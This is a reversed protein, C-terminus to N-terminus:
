QKKPYPKSISKLLSSLTKELPYVYKHKWFVDTKKLGKITGFLKNATRKHIAKGTTPHFVERQAKSAGLYIWNTAQYLVGCHGQEPDAFSIVCKCLPAAKKLLRLSISVAVGTSEQKGNLAM